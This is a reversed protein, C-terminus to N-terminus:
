WLWILALPAEFFSYLFAFQFLEHANFPKLKSYCISGSLATELHEKIIGEWPCVFKCSCNPTCVTLITNLRIVVANEFALSLCIIRKSSAPNRNSIQDPSAVFIESGDTSIDQYMDPTKSLSSLKSMDFASIKDLSQSATLYDAQDIFM